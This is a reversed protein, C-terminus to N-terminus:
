PAVLRYAGEAGDYGYVRVFGGPPVTVQERDTTGQSIGVQAGAADYAALDLDGAAHSLEIRV